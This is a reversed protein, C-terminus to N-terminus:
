GQYDGFIIKHGSFYQKATKEDTGATEMIEKIINDKNAKTLNGSAAVEELIEMTIYRITKVNKKARGTRGQRDEVKDMNGSAKQKLYTNLISRQNKTLGDEDREVVKKSKEKTPEVLPEEHRGEEIETNAKNDADVKEENIKNPVSSTDAEPTTPKESFASELEVNEEPTEEANMLDLAEDEFQEAYRTVSRPSVGFERAIEAKTKGSEEIMLVALAISIKTDVSTTVTTM